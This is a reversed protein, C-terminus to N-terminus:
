KFVNLACSALVDMWLLYRESSKLLFDDSRKRKIIFSRKM